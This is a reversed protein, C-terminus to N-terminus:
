IVCSIVYFKILLIHCIYLLLIHFFLIVFTFSFIDNPLVIKISLQDRMQTFFFQDRMQTLFLLLLQASAQPARESVFVTKLHVGGM